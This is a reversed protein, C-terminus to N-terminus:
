LPLTPWTVVTADKLYTLDRLEQRYNKWAAKKEESLPSDEVQTWDSEALLANRRIRLNELLEEKNQTAPSFSHKGEIVRYNKSLAQQWEEETLEINPQPINEHIKEVYFGTYEGNVNYTAKYM